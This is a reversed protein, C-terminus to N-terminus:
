GAANALPPCVRPWSLCIFPVPGHAHLFVSFLIHGVAVFLVVCCCDIENGRAPLKPNGGFQKGLQKQTIGANQSGPDGLDDAVKLAWKRHVPPWMTWTLARMTHDSAIDIMHHATLHQFQGTHHTIPAGLSESANSDLQGRAKQERKNRKKVWEANHSGPDGLDDAVKLAWKRHVPPWMTWTLARMTHDSAIDIMHHATLHQFQGTHHTIPAGLTDSLNSDRGENWFALTSSCKLCDRGARESGLMIM